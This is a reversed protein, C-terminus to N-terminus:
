VFGDDDVIARRKVISDLAMGASIIAMLALAFCVYLEDKTNKEMVFIGIIGIVSFGLFFIMYPLYQNVMTYGDKHKNLYEKRVKENALFLRVNQVTLYIGYCLVAACIIYDMTDFKSM